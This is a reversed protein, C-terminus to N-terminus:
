TILLTTNLCCLKQHWRLECQRLLRALVASNGRLVCGGPARERSQAGARGAGRERSQAGARGPARERSQAGARGAGRESGRGVRSGAGQESGRGARTGDGQESVGTGAGQELM